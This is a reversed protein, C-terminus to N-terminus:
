YVVPCMWETECCCKDTRTRATSGWPLEPPRTSFTSADAPELDTLAFSRVFSAARQALRMMLAQVDARDKTWHKWLRDAIATHSALGSPNSGMAAGAKIVWALTRLNTLAAITDDHAALWGLTPLPLLARKVADSKLAEVEGPHAKRGGLITEDGEVWSQTQM